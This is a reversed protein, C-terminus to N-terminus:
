ELAIYGCTDASGDWAAKRPPVLEQIAFLIAPLFPHAQHPLNWLAVAVLFVFGLYTNWISATTGLTVLSSCGKNQSERLRLLCNNMSSDLPCTPAQLSDRRALGSCWTGDIIVPTSQVALMHVIVERCIWVGVQGMGLSCSLILNRKWLCHHVDCVNVLSRCSLCSHPFLTFFELPDRHIWVVSTVKHTCLSSANM